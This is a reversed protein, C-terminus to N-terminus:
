CVDNIFTDHHVNIIWQHCATLHLLLQISMVSPVWASELCESIFHDSLTIRFSDNYVSHSAHHWLVGKAVLDHLAVQDQYSALVVLKMVNAQRLESVRNWLIDINGRTCGVDIWFIVFNYKYRVWSFLKWLLKFLEIDIDILRNTKWKM